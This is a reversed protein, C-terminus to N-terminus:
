FRRTIVFSRVTNSEYSLSASAKLLKLYVPMEAQANTGLWSEASTLSLCSRGDSIINRGLKRRKSANSSGGSRVASAKEMPTKTAKEGKRPRWVTRAVEMAKTKRKLLNAIYLPVKMLLGNVSTGIM